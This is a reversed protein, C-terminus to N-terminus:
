LSLIHNLLECNENSVKKILYMMSMVGRLRALIIAKPSFVESVALCIAFATPTPFDLTERIM